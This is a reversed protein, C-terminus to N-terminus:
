MCLWTNHDKVTTKFSQSRGKIRFKRTSNFLEDNSTFIMNRVYIIMFLLFKKLEIIFYKIVELQRAKFSSM